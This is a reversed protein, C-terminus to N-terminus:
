GSLGRRASRCGQWSCASAPSMWCRRGVLLALIRWGAQRLPTSGVEGGEAEHRGIRRRRRAELILLTTLVIVTNTTRAIAFSPLWGTQRIVLTGIIAITAIGVLAVLAYAVGRGVLRACGTGGVIVGLLIVGITAGIAAVLSLPGPREGLVLISLLVTLGGYAFIVPVVITVPGARLAAYAAFYVMSGILGSAMAGILLLPHTPLVGGTVLFTAVVLLCTIPVVVGTTRRSGVRRSAVAGGLDGFGGAAASALGLLGGGIGIM